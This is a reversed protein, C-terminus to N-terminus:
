VWGYVTIRSMERKVCLLEGSPPTGGRRPPTVSMGGIFEGLLNLVINEFWAISYGGVMKYGIEYFCKDFWICCNTDLKM